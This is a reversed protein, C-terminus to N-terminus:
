HIFLDIMWGGGFFVVSSFQVSRVFMGNDWGMGNMGGLFGILRHALCAFAGLFFFVCVCVCLLSFLSLSLALFSFCCSSFACFPSFCIFHRFLRHILALASYFSVFLIYTYLSSFPTKSELEPM